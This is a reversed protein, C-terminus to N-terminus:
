AKYVYKPGEIGIIGNEIYGSNILVKQSAKNNSNTEAEIRVVGEQQIAWKSIANLAETMYGKKCFGERLGYGIEIVGELNLGKFCFDGVIIGPNGKLEMHWVTYWIRDKPHDVCGKLMESYAQKMEKCTEHQILNEIEENSIPYLSLRETEVILM